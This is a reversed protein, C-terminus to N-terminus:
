DNPDPRKEDHLLYRQEQRLHRYLVPHRRLVDAALMGDSKPGFLQAPTVDAFLKQSEALASQEHQEPTLMTGPGPVYM